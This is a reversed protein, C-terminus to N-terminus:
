LNLLITLIQFPKIQLKINNKEQSLISNSEIKRELINCIFAKSYIYSNFFFFLLVQNLILYYNLILFVHEVLHKMYDLLLMTM